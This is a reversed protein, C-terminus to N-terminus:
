SNAQADEKRIERRVLTAGAQSDLFWHLPIVAEDGEDTRVHAFVWKSDDLIWLKGQWRIRVDSHTPDLPWFIGVFLSKLLPISAVSVALFVAIPFAWAIPAPLGIGLPLSLVIAVVIGVRQFRSFRRELQDPTMEEALRTKLFRLLVFIGGWVLALGFLWKAINSALTFANGFLPMMFELIVRTSAFLYFWAFLSALVIFLLG